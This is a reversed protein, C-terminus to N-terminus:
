CTRPAPPPRMLSVFAYLSNNSDYRLFDRILANRRRLNYEFQQRRKVISAIESRSFYGRREYDELEPVM